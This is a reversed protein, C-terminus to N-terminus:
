KSKRYEELRALARDRVPKKLGSFQRQGRVMAIFYAAPNDGREIAVEALGLMDRLSSAVPSFAPSEQKSQWDIWDSIAETDSLMENTVPKFIEPVRLGSVKPDAPSGELESAQRNAPVSVSRSTVDTGDTVNRENTVHSSQNCCDAVILQSTDIEVEELWGIERSCLFKIASEIQSPSAGTKLSIDDPSLSGDEDVLTGRLPCKAAVQVLLNFAGYIELGNSERMIRRFGKGDHKTPMAVWNLPGRTRSNQSVEFRSASWQRIRYAKVVAM